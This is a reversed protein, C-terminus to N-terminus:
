PSPEASLQALLAAMEAAATSAGAHAEAVARAGRRWKGLEDTPMAALREIAKAFLKPDGLPLDFGAHYDELGRWPTQDGILVPTGSALSEFIAHGFNESLSPLLMLDHAALMPGVASNAIEGRHRAEVHAPLAAILAQCRQWHDRDGIPGYIDFSVPAKVNSLAALAFDLGKVPTIRGVFAIRVPEGSARPTFAPLAFIPRSNAIQRVSSGPLAAAIDAAEAESTAHLTVGDLLGACRALTRYRRKRASKLALAGVSFEGRPSLLVPRRPTQGLRRAILAPITFERDFFGNLIMVDHPTDRILRALGRAGALGVPLHHVKAFGRDHWGDSSVLPESAGVARDRGVLRFELRDGLAECMARISLNPGTSEHGPWFAGILILITPKSM